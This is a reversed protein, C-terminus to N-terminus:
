PEINLSYGIVLKWVAVNTSLKTIPKQCNRSGQVKFGSGQVKNSFAVGM